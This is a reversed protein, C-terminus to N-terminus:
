IKVTMSGDGKANELDLTCYNTASTTQQEMM